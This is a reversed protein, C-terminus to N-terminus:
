VVEALSRKDECTHLELEIGNEKFIGVDMYRKGSPGSLYATAGFRKCIEVLRDGGVAGTPWDVEIATKIGLMECARKIVAVNTKWLSECVLDDFASLNPFRGRIKAWDESHNSYRKSLISELGGRVSMTNWKSEPSLRFRNQFGGKEFQCHGLLVFVDASEIKNFLPMWPIFNPQHIAIKM